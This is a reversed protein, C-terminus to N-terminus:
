TSADKGTHRRIFAVISELSTLEEFTAEDGITMCLEKEVHRIIMLHGFSDWGALDYIKAEDPIAEPKTNLAAGVLRRAATVASEETM